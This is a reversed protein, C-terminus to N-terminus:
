DMKYSSFILEHKTGLLYNVTIRIYITVRVQHLSFEYSTDRIWFAVRLKFLYYSTVRKTLFGGM